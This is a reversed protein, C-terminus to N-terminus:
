TTIAASIKSDHILKQQLELIRLALQAIQKYIAHKNEKGVFSNQFIFKDEKM